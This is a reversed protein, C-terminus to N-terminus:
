WLSGVESARKLVVAKVRCWRWSHGSPFFFYVSVHIRGKTAELIGQVQISVNWTIKLRKRRWEEWKGREEAVSWNEESTIRKLGAHSHWVASLAGGGMFWLHLPLHVVGVSGVFVHCLNCVVVDPSHRAGFCAPTPRACVALSKRRTWLVEQFGVLPCRSLFSDSLCTASYLLGKCKWM